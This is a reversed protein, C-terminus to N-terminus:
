QDGALTQRDSGFTLVAGRGLELDQDPDVGGDLHVIVPVSADEGIHEALHRAFLFVRPSCARPPSLVDVRTRDGGFVSVTPKLDAKLRRGARDPPSPWPTARKIVVAGFVIIWVVQVLAVVNGILFVAFVSDGLLPALLLLFSGVVAPGIVLLGTLLNNSGM